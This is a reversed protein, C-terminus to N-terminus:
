PTSPALTGGKPLSPQSEITVCDFHQIDVFSHTVNVGAYHSLIHQQMETFAAQDRVRLKQVDRPQMVTDYTAGEVDKIFEAFPVFTVCGCFQLSALAVLFYVTAMRGM